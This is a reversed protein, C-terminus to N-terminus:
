IQPTDICAYYYLWQLIGLLIYVKIFGRHSSNFRINGVACIIVSQFPNLRLSHKLTFRKSSLLIPLIKYIKILWDNKFEETYNSQIYLKQFPLQLTRYIFFSPKSLAQFLYGRLPDCQMAHDHHSNNPNSTVSPFTPRTYVLEENVSSETPKMEWEVTIDKIVSCWPDEFHRIFTSNISTLRFDLSWFVDVVKTYGFNKCKWVSMKNSHIKWESCNLTRNKLQPGIWVIPIVNEGRCHSKWYKFQM